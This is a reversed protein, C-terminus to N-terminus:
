HQAAESAAMSPAKTELEPETETEADFRKKKSHFFNFDADAWTGRFAVGPHLATLCLSALGIMAGELVMFTAQNNALSGHFGGSLEAVRFCSRITITLTALSLGGLFYTFIASEFVDKRTTDWQFPSRWVRAAFDGCLVIFLVLSFVQFSLGGIMIHIGLQTTSYDTAISAIAGGIAQLLLSIFDCTCFVITYFRPRFRSLNEGYVVVIRALCLYICASLFAPAITLCVLYILFNTKDFPNQNIMIRGAYGIIELALGCIAAILFGWTKYRIGLGFQILACVGFLAALFANAGLNPIYTFHALTLDCTSLTCLVDNDLCLTVNGYCQGGHQSTLNTGPWFPTMVGAESLDLSM